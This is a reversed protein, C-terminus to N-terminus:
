LGAKVFAIVAETNRRQNTPPQYFGLSLFHQQILASQKAITAKIAPINCGTAKQILSQSIAFKEPHQQNWLMIAEIASLIKSEVRNEAAPPTHLQHEHQKRLTQQCLAPPGVITTTTTTTTTTTVVPAYNLYGIAWHESSGKSSPLFGDAVATAIIEHYLPLYDKAITALSYGESLLAIEAECLAQIQKKANPRFEALKDVFGMVLIELDSQDLKPHDASIPTGTGNLRIRQRFRDIVSQRSPLNMYTTM